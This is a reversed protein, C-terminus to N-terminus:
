LVPLCLGIVIGVPVGQLDEVTLGWGDLFIEALNSVIGIQGHHDLFMEFGAFEAVDLLRQDCREEEHVAWLMVQEIVLAGVVRVHEVVGVQDCLAGAANGVALHLDETDGGRDGAGVGVGDVEAAVGGAEAGAVADAHNVAEVFAGFSIDLADAVGSLNQDSNLTDGNHRQRIYM